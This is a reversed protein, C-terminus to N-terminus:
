KGPESSLSRLLVGHSREEELSLGLHSEASLVPWLVVALPIRRKHCYGQTRLPEKKWPIRWALINSHAAMEKELPDERGLSPVETERMPPRVRGDSGGPFGPFHAGHVLEVAAWRM